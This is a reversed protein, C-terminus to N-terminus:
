KKQIHLLILDSSSLSESLYKNLISTYFYMHNSFSRVFFIRENKKRLTTLLASTLALGVILVTSISLILRMVYQMSADEFHIKEKM